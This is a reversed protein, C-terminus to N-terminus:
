IQTIVIKFTSGKGPESEVWIEGHHAEVIEKVVTLGLGTGGVGDGLTSNVRHYKEFISKLQNKPIGIGKDSFEILVSNGSSGMQISIEREKDSYKIANDLLNIVVQKLADPDGTVHIGEELDM